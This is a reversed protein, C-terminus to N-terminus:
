PDIKHSGIEEGDCTLKAVTGVKGVFHLSFYGTITADEQVHDEKGESNTFTVKIRRLKCDERTGRVTVSKLSEKQVPAETWSIGLAAIDSLFREMAERPVDFAIRTALEGRTCDGASSESSDTRRDNKSIM